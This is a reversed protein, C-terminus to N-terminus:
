SPFISQSVASPAAAEYKRVRVWRESNGFTQENKAVAAEVGAGDAFTIYATGSARGDKM